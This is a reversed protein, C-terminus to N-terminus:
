LEEVIMMNIKSFVRARLESIAQFEPIAMMEKIVAVTPFQFIAVM